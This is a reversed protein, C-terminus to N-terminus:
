RARRTRNGTPQKKAHKKACKRKKKKCHRKKKKHHRHKATPNGPGVFTSSGASPAIAPAPVPGSRCGEGSCPPPPAPPSQGALGGGARADYIDVLADNDRSVLPERTSFYVDTGDASADYFYSGDSSRGSSVLAAGDDSFAYADPLGNTDGPVLAEATDFFVSGSDTVFRRAYYDMSRFTFGHMMEADATASAADTRCSACELQDSLADYRFVELHGGSPYGTLPDGSVFALYHGNPSVTVLARSSGNGTIEGTAVHAIEGDHWVYINDAGSTGGPALRGKAGFYVYSGDDSVGLVGTDQSPDSVEAGNPDGAEDDVTLDVLEGTSAQYRYLDSGASTPGTTADDTLKEGSTFFVFEQDPTVAGFVPKQPGNPDGGSRQSASVEVPAAGDEWMWIPGISRFDTPEQIYVARSGDDSLANFSDGATTPAGNSWWGPIAGGPFGAILRLEPAPGDIWLYLNRVGPTAGPTLAATTQLLIRGFDDSADVFQSPEGTPIPSSAPTILKLEGGAVDRLFLNPVGKQRPADPTLPDLSQIVEKSLDSSLAIVPSAYGLGQHPEQHVNVQLTGWDDSQRSGLYYGPTGGAVPDSFSGPSSYVVAGGSASSQAGGTTSGPGGGPSVDAGNKDVPSVMEWARCDDLLTANQALRLAENGCPVTGRTSFTRDAGITTGSANVAVVRFHYTTGPALGSLNQSVAVQSHGEGADGDEAVPVSACPDTACDELGWEFWYTTSQGYPNVRAALTATSVGRSWASATIALPASADTTFTPNPEASTANGNANEAILRFEYEANPELGEVTATVPVSDTGSGASQPDTSVWDEAGVQRYEFRYTTEAGNPDVAGRLEAGTATVSGPDVPEAAAGPPTVQEFSRIEPAGYTSGFYLGYDLVAYLRAPSTSFALGSVTDYPANLGPALLPSDASDFLFLQPAEDRYVADQEGSVAVEDSLPNVAVTAPRQNPGVPSLESKFEGSGSYRVAKSTGEQAGIDPGNADIVYVDGGSNVALDIPGEFASAGNSGDFSSVFTGDAEFRQVLKNAHDALLLDGSAPDIALAAKFSGVEGAGTGQAPSTFTADITFSPTGAEDSDYKVIRENGADAVYVSTEGAVEAVAIGWPESLDGEGFSTLFDGTGSGNPAFVEVRDNGSNVVFLNGTSQEVAAHGPSDLQGPDTGPGSFSGAFTYDAAAPQVLLSVMCVAAILTIAFTRLADGIGVTSRGM